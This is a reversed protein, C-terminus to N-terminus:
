GQFSLLDTLQVALFMIKAGVKATQFFNVEFQTCLSLIFTLSVLSTDLSGLALKDQTSPLWTQSGQDCDIDAESGVKALRLYVAMCNHM